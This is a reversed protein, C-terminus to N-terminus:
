RSQCLRAVPRDESRTPHGPIPDHDIKWLTTRNGGAPRQNPPSIEPFVTSIHLFIMGRESRGTLRNGLASLPNWRKSAPTELEELHDTTRSGMKPIQPLSVQFGEEFEGSRRLATRVIRRQVERTMR